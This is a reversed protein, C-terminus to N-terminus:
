KELANRQNQMWSAWTDEGAMRVVTLMEIVLVSVHLQCNRLWDHFHRSKNLGWTCKLWCIKGDQALSIWNVDNWGIEAKTWGEPANWDASKGMRLWVSGTWTMGDLKKLIWKLMIRWDVEELCDKDKLDGRFGLVCMGVAVYTSHARGM